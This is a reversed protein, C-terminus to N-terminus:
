AYTIPAFTLWWCTGFFFITGFIWGLVFSRVTSAKEREVAFMLPVLAFWATWWLEFDPFALILLVAAFAALAANKWSPLIRKIAALKM